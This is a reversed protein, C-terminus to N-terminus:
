SVKSKEFIIERLIQMVSFNQLKWVTSWYNLESVKESAKPDRFVTVEGFHRIKPCPFVSGNTSQVHM